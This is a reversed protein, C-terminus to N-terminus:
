GSFPLWHAKVIPQPKGSVRSEILSSRQDSLEPTRTAFNALGRGIGFQDQSTIGSPTRVADVM